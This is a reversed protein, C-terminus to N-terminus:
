QLTWIRGYNGPVTLWSQEECVIDKLNEHGNIAKAVKARFHSKLGAFVSHLLAAIDNLKIKEIM